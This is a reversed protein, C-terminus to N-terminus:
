GALLDVHRQRPTTVRAQLSDRDVPRGVEAVQPGDTAEADGRGVRQPGREVDSRDGVGVGDAEDHLVEEHHLGELERRQVTRDGAVACTPAGAETM